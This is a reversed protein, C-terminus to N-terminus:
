RQLLRLPIGVLLELARKGAGGGHAVQDGAVGRDGAGLAFVAIHIVYLGTQATREVLASAFNTRRAVGFWFINIASFDRRARGAMGFAKSM